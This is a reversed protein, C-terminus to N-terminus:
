KIEWQRKLNECVQVWREVEYTKKQKQLFFSTLCLSMVKARM